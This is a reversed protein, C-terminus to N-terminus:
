NQYSSVMQQRWLLYCGRLCKKLFGRASWPRYASCGAHGWLDHPTAMYMEPKRQENDEANPQGGAYFFNLIVELM